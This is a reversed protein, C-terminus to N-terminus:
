RGCALTSKGKKLLADKSSRLLLLHQLWAVAHAHRNGAARIGDSQQEQQQLQSRLQTDHEAYNVEIVFQTAFSGIRILVKNRSEGRFMPQLKVGSGDLYGLLRFLLPGVELVGRPPRSVVIKTRQRFRSHALLDGHRVCGVILRFSHECMEEATCPEGPKAPNM